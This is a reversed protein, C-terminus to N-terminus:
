SLLLNNDNHVYTYLEYKNIEILRYVENGNREVNGDGHTKHAFRCEQIEDRKINIADVTM